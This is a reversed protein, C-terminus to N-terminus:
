GTRVFAVRALARDAALFEFRFGSESLFEEFARLEHQRDSFEDFLLYSGPVLADKLERLVFITSAYLDADLHVVLLRSPEVDYVPLTQEFWGTFFAVRPDDVRPPEGSTTFAGRRTTLNFDAPLGEFSDFGHLISDPHTLLRSWARITEGRYVGFELYLVPRTGIRGAIFDYLKLRDDFRRSTDAGFERLWRGVELYNVAANLRHIAGRPCHAGARTLLAKFREGM